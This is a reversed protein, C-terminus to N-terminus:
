ALERLGAPTALTADLRPKPAIEFTIRDDSFHPALLSALRGAEPHHLRLATLSCGFDAMRAGPLPGDPWAIMAPMVGDMPLIGDEPILITWALSGRSVARMEGVQPGLVARAAALDDTRLVWTALRPETLPADLGFWRPRPPPDAEPDVAIIELFEDSGLRMLRNHTGMQPHAGGAPVNFGLAARVHDAGAALDPAAVAIHDLALRM